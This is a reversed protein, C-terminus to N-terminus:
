TQGHSFLKRLHTLISQFLGIVKTMTRDRAM